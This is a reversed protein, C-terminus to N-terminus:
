SLFLNRSAKVAREPLLRPVGIQVTRQKLKMFYSEQQQAVVVIFSRVLAKPLYGGANM